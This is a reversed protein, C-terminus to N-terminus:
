IENMPDAELWDFSLFDVIDIFTCCFTQNKFLCELTSLGKKTDRFFSNLYFGLLFENFFSIIKQQM